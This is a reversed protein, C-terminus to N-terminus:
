SFRHVLSNLVHIGLMLFMIAFFMVALDDALIWATLSSLWSTLSTILTGVATLITSMGGTPTDEFFIHGNGILYQIM